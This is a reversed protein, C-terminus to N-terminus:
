KIEFQHGAQVMLCESRWCCEVRACFYRTGSKYCPKCHEIVQIMRVVETMTLGNPDYGMKRLRDDADIM